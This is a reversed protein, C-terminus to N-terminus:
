IRQNLESLVIGEIDATVDAFARTLFNDDMTGAFESPVGWTSGPSKVMIAGTRSALPNNPDLKIRWGYIVPSDGAFLLWNLWPITIRKQTLYTADPISLVDAFDSRLIKITCGGSVFRGGVVNVPDISFEINQQLMSIIQDVIPRADAIGLEERLRGNIISDMEPSAYVAVAIIDSVRNLISPAANRLSATFSQALDAMIYNVIDSESQELRVTLM